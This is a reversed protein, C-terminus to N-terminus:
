MEEDVEAVQSGFWVGLPHGIDLHAILDLPDKHINIVHSKVVKGALVGDARRKWKVVATADQYLNRSEQIEGSEGIQANLIVPINLTTAVQHLGRSIQVYRERISSVRTDVDMWSLQDIVILSPHYAVGLRYALDPTLYGGALDRTHIVWFPDIQQGHNQALQTGYDLLRKAFATTDAEPAVGRVLTQYDFGGELADWRADFEQPAIELNFFLVPQHYQHWFALAWALAIWTKGQHWPAASVIYDGRLWGGLVDDTAKDGTSLINEGAADVYHLARAVTNQAMDRAVIPVPPSVTELFQQIKALADEPREWEEYTPLDSLRDVQIWQRWLRDRYYLVPEPLPPPDGPLEPFAECLSGWAPSQHYRQYFQDGWEFVTQLGDHRFWTAQFGLDRVQGWDQTLAALAQLGWSAM